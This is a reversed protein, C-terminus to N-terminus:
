CRGCRSYAVPGRAPPWGGLVRLPARPRLPNWIRIKGDSAATALARGNPAWAVANLPSGGRLTADLAGDAVSCSASGRPVALAIRTGNPRRAADVAEGAARLSPALANMGLLAARM